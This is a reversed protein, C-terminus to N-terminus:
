RFRKWFDKAKWKNIWVRKFDKLVLLDNLLRKLDKGEMLVKYGFSSSPVVKIEIGKRTKKIEEIRDLSISSDAKKNIYIKVDDLIVEGAYQTEKGGEIRKYLGRGYSIKM